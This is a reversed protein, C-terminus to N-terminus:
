KTNLCQDSWPKPLSNCLEYFPKTNKNYNYTSYKILGQYCSEKTTQDDALSCLRIARPILSTESDIMASAGYIFCSKKSDQPLQSCFNKIKNLDLTYGQAMIHIMMNFCYDQRVYPQSSCYTLLGNPTKIEKKYLPWGELWCAEKQLPTQFTNCYNALDEKKKPGVNEILAIDEPELPQFLQMFLGEYCVSSFDRKDKKKSIQNCLNVAKHMRAKTIYVTLHGLGHYCHAQELGTPNWNQRAECVSKLDPLIKQIQKDTLSESRFHQQMVGHQCGNACTGYPCRAIVDKWKSPDKKEEIASLTHGLVHCYLYSKDQKQILNTVKFADEMSIYKMLKPIETDYCSPHYKSDRCKKLVTEAYAQLSMKEKKSGLSFLTFVEFIVLLSVAFLYILRLNVRKTKFIKM